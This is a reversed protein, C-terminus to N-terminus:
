EEQSCWQCYDKGTRADGPNTSGSWRGGVAGARARVADAPIQADRGMCAKGLAVDGPEQTGRTAGADALATDGPGGLALDDRAPANERGPCGM